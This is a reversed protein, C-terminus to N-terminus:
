LNKFFNIAENPDSFDQKEKEQPKEKPRRKIKPKGYEGEMIKAVVFKDYRTECFWQLTPKIFSRPDDNSFDESMLLYLKKLADICSESFFKNRMSRMVIKMRDDVALVRHFKSNVESAKNWSEILERSAKLKNTLKQHLADIETEPLSYYGAYHGDRMWNGLRHCYEADVENAYLQACKVLKVPDLKESTAIYKFGTLSGGMDDQNPWFSWVENFTSIAKLPSM